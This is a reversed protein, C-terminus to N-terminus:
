LWYEVIISGAGGVGGTLTNGIAQGGGNEFGAVPTAASAGGTQASGEGGAGGLASTAGTFSTTGGSTGTSGSTNGASGGAGIAYTISAGPTTALTSSIAQGPMGPYAVQSATSVCGGGGGGAGFLQVNVYTVGAPVTWSTGSLLTLSYSTKGGSPAPFTNVGM